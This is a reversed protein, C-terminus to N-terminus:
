RIGDDRKLEAVACQAMSAVFGEQGGVRVADPKLEAVACQAM